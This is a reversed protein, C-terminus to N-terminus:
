VCIYISTHLIRTRNCMVTTTSFFVITGRVCAARRRCKYRVNCVGPFVSLDVYDRARNHSCYINYARAYFVYIYIYVKAIVTSRRRFTRRASIVIYIYINNHARGLFCSYWQGSSTHELRLSYTLSLSLIHSLFSFRHRDDYPLARATQWTTYVRVRIYASSSASTTRTHARIPCAAATTKASPRSM